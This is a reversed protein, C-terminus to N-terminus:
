KLMDIVGKSIDLQTSSICLSDFYGDCRIIKEMRRRFFATPKRLGVSTFFQEGQREEGGTDQSVLEASGIEIRKAWPPFKRHLELVIQHSSLDRLHNIEDSPLNVIQYVM